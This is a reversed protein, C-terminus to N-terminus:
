HNQQTYKQRGLIVLGMYMTCRLSITGEGLWFVPARRLWIARRMGYQIRPQYSKTFDNIGRYVDRINTIKSNTEREDIEAKM